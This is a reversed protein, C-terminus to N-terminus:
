NAGTQVVNDNPPQPAQTAMALMKKRHENTEYFENSMIKVQKKLLDEMRPLFNDVVENNSQMFDFLYYMVNWVFPFALACQGTASLSASTFIFVAVCFNFWSLFFLSEKHTTCSSFVM